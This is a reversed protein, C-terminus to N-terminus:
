ICERCKGSCDCCCNCLTKTDGHIDEAYPCTHPEAAENAQCKDCKTPDHKVEASLPSITVFFDAHTRVLLRANFVDRAEVHGRHVPQGAVNEYLYYTQM